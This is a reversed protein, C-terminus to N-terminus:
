AASASPGAGSKRAPRSRSRTCRATAAARSSRGRRRQRRRCLPQRLHHRDAAGRALQGLQRPRDIKDFSIFRHAGGAHQGWSFMLGSVILQDGDIIPSSMRGGHTTWMGFEEALSREWLLKGDSSLSMVLGNGSIAFVNGRRRSRRGALGVRHPAAARREHLPQLQAGLAAQRHRRPLVDPTGARTAGRGLHEASLPSRRLGGARLPRRVAGELGPEPGGTVVLVAPRDRGLRRHAGPRALRALGRRAALAAAPILLGVAVLLPLRPLTAKM